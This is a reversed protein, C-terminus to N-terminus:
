KSGKKAGEADAKEVARASSLIGKLGYNGEHCAYEFLTEDSKRMPLQATFPKTWTTPDSVTFEYMLIDADVRSFKEILHMNPGSNAFSTQDYFGKTEIVLTNGEWHGRSSGSWQPVNVRSRGDLPIIRTTHVMETVIAVYDPTQFLHMNNNYAGPLMPSDPTSAWSAASASAEIRRAWAPSGQARRDRGGEEECSPDLSSDKRGGSRYDVLENSGVFKKGYDWWFENYARAVDATAPAGNVVPPTRTPDEDRRDMDLREHASKEYEAVEQDTLFEKGAFQSPRELPIVNRFDWM